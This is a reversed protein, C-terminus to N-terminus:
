VHLEFNSRALGLRRHSACTEECTAWARFLQIRISRFRAKLFDLKRM